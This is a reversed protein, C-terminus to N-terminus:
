EMKSEKWIKKYWDEHDQFPDKLKKSSPGFGTYISYLTISILVFELFVTSVFSIDEVM